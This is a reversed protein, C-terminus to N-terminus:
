EGTIVTCQKTYTGFINLNESDVTAIENIGAAKAASEISADGISTMGFFSTICAKGTKSGTKAAGMTIPTKSDTYAWGFPGDAVFGCGSLAGLSFVAVVTMLVARKGRM